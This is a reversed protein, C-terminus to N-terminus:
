MTVIKIAHKLVGKYIRTSAQNKKLTAHNQM